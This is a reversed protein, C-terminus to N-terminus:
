KQLIMSNADLYICSYACAYPVRTFVTERWLVSWNQEWTLICCFFHARLTPITYQSTGTSRLDLSIVWRLLVTLEFGAPLTQTQVRVTKAMEGSRLMWLSCLYWLVAESLHFFFNGKLWINFAAKSSRITFNVLQEANVSCSSRSLDHWMSQEQLLPTVQLQEQWLIYRM